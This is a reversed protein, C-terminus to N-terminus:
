PLLYAEISYARGQALYPHDKVLGLTENIDEAQIISHGNLRTASGGTSGDGHLALGTAMLRSHIAARELCSFM